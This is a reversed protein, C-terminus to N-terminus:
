KEEKIAYGLNNNEIKWWQGELHVSTKTEVDGVRNETYTTVRVVPYAGLLIKLKDLFSIHLYVRNYVVDQYDIGLM